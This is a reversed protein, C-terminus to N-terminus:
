SLAVTLLILTASATVSLFVILTLDSSPEATETTSSMSNPVVDPSILKSGM